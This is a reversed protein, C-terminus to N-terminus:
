DLAGSSKLAKLEAQYLRFSTTISVGLLQKIAMNKSALSIVIFVQWLWLAKCLM